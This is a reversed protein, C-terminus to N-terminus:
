LKEQIAYADKPMQGKVSRYEYCGGHASDFAHLALVGDVYVDANFGMMTDHGEFTKVNKLTIGLAKANDLSNQENMHKTKVNLTM